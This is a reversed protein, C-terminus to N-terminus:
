KFVRDLIDEFADVIWGITRNKYKNFEKDFWTTAGNIWREVVTMRDVVLSLAQKIETELRKQAAALVDELSDIAYILNGEIVKRADRSEREVITIASNLARELNARAMGAVSEMSAMSTLLTSRVTNVKNDLNEVTYGITREINNITSIARSYANDGVMDAYDRIKNVERIARSYANDGVLDAYDRADQIKTEIVRYSERAGIQIATKVDDWSYYLIDYISRMNSLCGNAVMEVWDYLSEKIFFMYGELLERGTRWGDTWSM